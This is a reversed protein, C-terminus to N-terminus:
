CGGEARTTTEFDPFPCPSAVVVLASPPQQFLKMFLNILSIIQSHIKSFPSGALRSFLYFEEGAFGAHREHGENDASM